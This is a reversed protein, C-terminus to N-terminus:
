RQPTPKRREQFTIAVSRRWLLFELNCGHLNGNRTVAHSIEVVRESPCCFLGEDAACDTKRAVGLARRLLLTQLACVDKQLVQTVQEVVVQRNQVGVRVGRVVFADNCFV